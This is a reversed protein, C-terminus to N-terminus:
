FKQCVEELASEYEALNVGLSNLLHFEPIIALMHAQNYPAAPDEGAEAYVGHPQWAKDFEDVAKEDVGFARCILAECQEHYAIAMEKRWDGLRSVRIVLEGDPDFGSALFQWDGVQGPIRQQDHPITDIRIKM